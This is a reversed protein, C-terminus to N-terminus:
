YVTLCILYYHVNVNNRVKKCLEVASYVVTIILLKNLFITFSICKNPPVM